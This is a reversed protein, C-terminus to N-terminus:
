DIIIYDTWRPGHAGLQIHQEVDATRSPGTILNITRPLAEPFENRLKIWADEQYAIIDKKDIVVVLREVLFLMGSACSQSNSIITGTEAIGILGRCLGWSNAKVVKSTIKFPPLKELCSSFEPSLILQVRQELQQGQNHFWAPLEEISDLRHTKAAKSNAERTFTELINDPIEPQVFEPKEKCLNAFAADLDSHGKVPTTSQKIRALITARSNSM